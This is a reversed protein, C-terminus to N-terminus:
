KRQEQVRPPKSKAYALADQWGEPSAPFRAAPSPAQRKDFTRTPERFHPDVKKWLLADKATVGCFVLVKVGEYACNACSPYRVKVVMHQDVQEFDIIEFEDAKPGELRQLKERLSRIEQYDAARGSSGCNPDGPAHRCIFEGRGVPDDPTIQRM